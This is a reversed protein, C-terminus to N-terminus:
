SSGHYINITAFVDGGEGTYVLNATYNDKDLLSGTGNYQIAIVNLGRGNGTYIEDKGDQNVDGKVIPWFEGVTRDALATLDAETAIIGKRNAVSDPDSYFLNATTNGESFSFLYVNDFNLPNLNSIYETGAIEDRGDGDVDVAALGFYSVADNPSTYSHYVGLQTTDPYTYSDPGNVRIAWLGFADWHHNIIEVQGDGDIDAPTSSWYSGTAWNRANPTDDPHGGEITLTAFGPFLGDISLIYVDRRPLSGHAIIESKGDGDLDQVLLTERLFYLGELAGAAMYMDSTIEYAPETGWSSIGDWEYLAIRAEGGQEFIIEPNGDGDCDGVQPFRPSSGQLITSVPSSWIIELVGESMIKMVHVRGGNTYDTAIIEQTGDGDADAVIVRRVGLGNYYPVTPEPAEGSYANYTALTVATIDTQANLAPLFFLTVFFFLLIKKM